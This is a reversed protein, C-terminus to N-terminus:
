IGQGVRMEDSVMRVGDVSEVLRILESAQDRDAPGRVIVTGDRVDIEIDRKPGDWRGVAESKIKQLLTEDDVEVPEQFVETLKHAMGRAVGQQYRAKATVKGRATRLAATSQDALKARRTRGREPDFLYAGAAGVTGAIGASRWFKGKSM